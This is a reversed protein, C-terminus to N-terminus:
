QNRSVNKSNIDNQKYLIRNLIVMVFFNFHCTFIGSITRVCFIQYYCINISVFEVDYINLDTPTDLLIERFFIAFNPHPLIKVAISTIFLYM